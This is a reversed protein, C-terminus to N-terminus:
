IIPTITDLLLAIYLYLCVKIGIDFMELKISKVFLYNILIFSFM